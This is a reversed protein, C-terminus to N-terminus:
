VSYRVAHFIYYSADYPCESSSATTRRRCASGRRRLQLCLSVRPVCFGTLCVTMGRAHFVALLARQEAHLVCCTRQFEACASLHVRTARRLLTWQGATRVTFLARSRFLSTHRQSARPCNISLSRALWRHPRSPTASISAVHAVGLWACTDRARGDTRASVSRTLWLSCPALLHTNKLEVSSCAEELGPEPQDYSRNWSRFRAFSPCDSIAFFFYCILLVSPSTCPAM